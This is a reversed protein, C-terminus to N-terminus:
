KLSDQMENIMNEIGERCGICFMIFDYFERTREEKEKIKKGGLHREEKYERVNPLKIHDLGIYLM